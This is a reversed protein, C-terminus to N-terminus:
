VVVRRQRTGRAHHDGQWQWQKKTGRDHQVVPKSPFLFGIGLILLETAVIGIMIKKFLRLPHLMRSRRSTLVSDHLGLIGRRHMVSLSERFSFSLPSQRQMIRAATFDVVRL